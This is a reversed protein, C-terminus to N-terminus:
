KIKTTTTQLNNKTYTSAFCAGLSFKSSQAPFILKNETIIKDRCGGGVEQRKGLHPTKGGWRACVDAAPRVGGGAWSERLPHPAPGPTQRGPCAPLRIYTALPNSPCWGLDGLRLGM